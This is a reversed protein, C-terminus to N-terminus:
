LVVHRTHRVNQFRLNQLTVVTCLNPAQLEFNLQRAAYMILRKPLTRPCAGLYSNLFQQLADMHGTKKLLLQRFRLAGGNKQHTVTDPIGSCYGDNRMKWETPEEM